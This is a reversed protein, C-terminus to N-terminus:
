VRENKEEKILEVTVMDSGDYILHCKAFKHAQVYDLVHDQFWYGKKEGAIRLVRDGHSAMFHAEKIILEEEKRKEKREQISMQGTSLEQDSDHMQRKRKRLM